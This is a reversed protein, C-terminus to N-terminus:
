ENAVILYKEDSGITEASFDLFLCGDSESFTGFLITDIKKCNPCMFLKDKPACKKFEGPTLDSHIMLHLCM